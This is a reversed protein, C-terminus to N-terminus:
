GGFESIMRAVAKDGFSQVVKIAAALLKAERPVTGKDGLICKACAKDRDDRSAPQTQNFDLMACYCIVHHNCRLEVTVGAQADKPEIKTAKRLPLYDFGAPVHTVIDLLYNFLRYDTVTADFLDVWAKNGTHPSAFMCATAREHIREALEQVFYTALSSGLSHGVVVVKGDQGVLDAVGETARQNTTKGNLDALQMTDFIDWFGHEVRANPHKPHPIPAFQADIIWEIAGATGRIVVAYLDLDEKNQAVFGFFVREGSIKSKGGPPAVLSAFNDEATLTACVTWGSKEIRDDLSPALKNPGDPNYMDEAYMVLFGYKVAQSDTIAM